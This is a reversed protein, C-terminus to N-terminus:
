STVTRCREILHVERPSCGVRLVSVFIIMWMVQLFVASVSVTYWILFHEIYLVLYM